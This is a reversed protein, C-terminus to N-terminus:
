WEAGNGFSRLFRNLREIITNDPIYDPCNSYIFQLNNHQIGFHDKACRYDCHIIWVEKGRRYIRRLQGNKTLMFIEPYEYKRLNLCSHCCNETKRKITDMFDKKTIIGGLVLKQSM